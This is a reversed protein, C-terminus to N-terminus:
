SRNGWPLPRMGRWPGLAPRCPRPRGPLARASFTSRTSEHGLRCCARRTRYPRIALNHRALQAREIGLWAIAFFGPLRRVPSGNICSALRQSVHASRTSPRRNTSMEHLVHGLTEQAVPPKKDLVAGTQLFSVVSRGPHSRLVTLQPFEGQRIEM